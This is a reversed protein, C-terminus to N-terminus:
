AFALQVDAWLERWKLMREKYQELKIALVALIRHYKSSTGLGCIKENGSITDIADSSGVLAVLSHTGAQFAM